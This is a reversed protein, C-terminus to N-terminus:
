VCRSTYLLCIRAQVTDDIPIIEVGWATMPQSSDPIFYESVDDSLAGPMAAESSLARLKAFVKVPTEVYPWDEDLREALETFEEDGYQIAGEVLRQEIERIRVRLRELVEDHEIVESYHVPESRDSAPQHDFM